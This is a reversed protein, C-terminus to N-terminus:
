VQRQDDAAWNVYISLLGFIVIFAAYAVSLNIPHNVLYYVTLTYMSPLYCTVGWYIYYGFRDHMIDLTGFYGSEWYFFKIIYVVQLFVSIAMSNSGSGNM